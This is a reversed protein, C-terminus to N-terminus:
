TAVQSKDQDAVYDVLFYDSPHSSIPQIGSNVDFPSLHSASNDIDLPLWIFLNVRALGSDALLANDDALKIHGM